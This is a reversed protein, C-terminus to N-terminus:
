QAMAKGDAGFRHMRVKDPTLYITDGHRVPMEGDARVTLPGVGDAQVHL